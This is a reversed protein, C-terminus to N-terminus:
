EKKQKLFSGCTLQLYLEYCLFTLSVVCNNGYMKDSFHLYWVLLESEAINQITNMWLVSFMQRWMCIVFSMYFLLCFDRSLLQLADHCLTPKVYATYHQISVHM